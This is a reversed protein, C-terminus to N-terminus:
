LWQAPDLIHFFSYLATRAPRCTPGVQELGFLHASSIGQHKRYVLGLLRMLVEGAGIACTPKSILVRYQMLAFTRDVNDFPTLLVDRPGVVHHSNLDTSIHARLM